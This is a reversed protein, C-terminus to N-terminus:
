RSIEAPTIARFPTEVLPNPYIIANGKNDRVEVQYLLGHSTLPVTVSWQGPGDSTMLTSQWTSTSPLDTYWLIVQAVPGVATVDCHITASDPAITHTLNTVAMGLPHGLDSDTIKLPGASAVIKRKAWVDPATADAKALDAEGESWRYDVEHRLHDTLPKYIADATDALQKWMQRSQAFYDVAADYDSQSNGDLAYLLHTTGLIRDAHYDGLDAACLLDGRMLRWEDAARGQLPPVAEIEARTASAASSLIEAIQIPSVSGDQQGHLKDDVFRSIGAFSRVDMPDNGAFRLIPVVSPRTTGAKKPKSKRTSSSRKTSPRTSPAKLSGLGTETEPSYDRQDPGQFRYSFVLPVIQSAAQMAQYIQEGPPGFHRQYEDIITQEPLDPDYGVRGWAFYWMWRKEFIYKYVRQDARDNFYDAAAYPYYAMEPEITFGRANGFTCARVTRRIFDTNEWDWWRHTGNARIQWIIRYNAPLDLYDEYSYAPNRKGDRGHIAQYPLGLQEGNFKIEINFGGPSDAGIAQLDPRKTGWTRTYLPIDGRGAAAVAQPYTQEYFADKQGSEGVRFGIMYLDPLQKLFATVAKATYDALESKNLGKSGASYNMIAVRLGRARAHAVIAQLDAMNRAQTPANGIDPYDALHVTLPYLSPFSAKAIDYQVHLDLLNFRDRALMDIYEEWMPVDFLPGEESTHLFANDARLELFPKQTTPTLDAAVQAWNAAVHENSIQEALEFLGYMLGTADGGRLSVDSGQVDLAFAQEGLSADFHTAVRIEATTPNIGAGRIAATVSDAAWRDCEQIGPTAQPAAFRIDNLFIWQQSKSGSDGGCSQLMVILCAICFLRLIFGSKGTHRKAAM